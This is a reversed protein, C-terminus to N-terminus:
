KKLREYERKKEQLIQINMRNQKKKEESPNDDKLNEEILEKLYAISAELEQKSPM